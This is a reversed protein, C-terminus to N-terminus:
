KSFFLDGVKRYMRMDADFQERCKAIAADDDISKAACALYPGCVAEALISQVQLLVTATDKLKILDAESINLDRIVVLEVLKNELLVMGLDIGPKVVQEIYERQCAKVQQDKSVDSKPGAKLCRIYALDVEKEYAVPNIVLVKGDIERDIQEAEEATVAKFNQSGLGLTLIVLYLQLCKM